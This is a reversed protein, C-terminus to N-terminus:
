DIDPILDCVAGVCAGGAKVGAAVAGGLRGALDALGAMADLGVSLDALDGLSSGPTEAPGQARAREVEAANEAAITGPDVTPPSHTM